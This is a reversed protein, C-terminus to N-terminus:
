NKIQTTQVNLDSIEEKALELQKEKVRIKEKVENLLEDKM